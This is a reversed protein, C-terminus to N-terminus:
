SGFIDIKIADFDWVFGGYFINSTQNYAIIDRELVLELVLYLLRQSTARCTGKMTPFLGDMNASVLETWIPHPPQPGSCSRLIAIDEM